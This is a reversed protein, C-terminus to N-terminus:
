VVWKVAGIVLGVILGSACVGFFMAPLAAKPRIGFLIAAVSATWVGTVPLPVAVFLFLALAGYLDYSKQFKAKTHLFWWHFFRAGLSSRRSVFATMAELAFVLIVASLMNGFISLAYAQWFPMRFVELAIPLGGRI